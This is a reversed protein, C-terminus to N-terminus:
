QLVSHISKILINQKRQLHTHGKPDFRSVHGYLMKMANRNIPKKIVFNHLQTRNGGTLTTFKSFYNNLQKEHKQTQQYKLINERMFTLQMLSNKNFERKLLPIETQINKLQYLNAKQIRKVYKNTVKTIKENDIRVKKPQLSKVKRSLTNKSSSLRSKLRNRITTRPRSKSTKAKLSPM